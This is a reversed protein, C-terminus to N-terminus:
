PAAEAAAIVANLGHEAYHSVMASAWGGFAKLFNGVGGEFACRPDVLRLRPRGSGRSGSPM